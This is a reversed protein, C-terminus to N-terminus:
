VAVVAPQGVDVTFYIYQKMTHWRSAIHPLILSHRQRVRELQRLTAFVRHICVFISLSWKYVTSCMGQAAYGRQQKGATGFTGCTGQKESLSGVYNNFFNDVPILEDFDMDLLFDQFADDGVSPQAM